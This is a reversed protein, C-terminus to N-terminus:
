LKKVSATAPDICIVTKDKSLAYKVTSGTGSGSGNWVAIVYGSNNVMYENRTQMCSPTYHKQLMTEKDCRALISYYRERSDQNWKIAQTECPLASELIIGPFEQKLSLVTEAAWIDVGLAMGSIFHSVNCDTILEKICKRLTDKIWICDSHTEDFKFSFNQPRHGTFCCANMEQMM